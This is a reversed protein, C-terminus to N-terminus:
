QRKELEKHDQERSEIALRVMEEILSAEEVKRKEEQQQRRKIEDQEVKKAEERM